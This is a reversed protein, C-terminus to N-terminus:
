VQWCVTMRSYSDHGRGGKKGSRYGVQVIKMVDGNGKSGM